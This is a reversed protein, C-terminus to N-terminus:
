VWYVASSNNRTKYWQRTREMYGGAAEARDGQLNCIWVKGTGVGVGIMKGSVASCSPRYESPLWVWGESNYTIWEGDVSLGWGQYRPKQANAIGNQNSSIPSAKLDLVGLKTRLYSSTNDYSIERLGTGVEITQLCTGCCTDWIRVTKDYSASALQAANPSFAISSIVDSHGELRQLCTGGCVDWIEVARNTSDYHERSASALQTGNPSFTVLDAQDRYGKLTKLCIGSRTNWIKVTEGL